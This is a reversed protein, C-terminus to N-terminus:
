LYKIAEKIGFKFRGGGSVSKNSFRVPIFILVQLTLATISDVLSVVKESIQREADDAQPAASNLNKFSALTFVCEVQADFM